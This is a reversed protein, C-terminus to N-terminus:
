TLPAVTVGILPIVGISAHIDIAPPFPLRSQEASEGSARLITEILM